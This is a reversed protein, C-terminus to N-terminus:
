ENRLAPLLPARLTPLVAFLGSIMAVAFVAALMLSVSALPLTDPREALHPLVAVAASITGVLLGAAVLAANELLVMWGLSSSAFGVARMLALEGRRELVNRLMVAALGITGLILGLGGLMQFTSLYTNQVASYDRIRDATRAVDFGFDTLNRELAATMADAKGLPTEILFFRSGTSSPFLRAFNANSVILEDQLASGKLLAVFRLPVQRGREDPIVLDKGLGSHLQWKAAAEDGIVPVADDEFERDLLRWPNEHEAEDDALTSSFVFGGRAIFDDRVGIIRPETPRYLNLCSSEDGPRLRCSFVTADALLRSAEDGINLEERGQETNLDFQLPVASEAYLAFGGTPSTKETSSTDTEIRFAQLAAIVFTASAILGITLMSRGPHRRANRAGLRAVASFGPQQIVRRPESSLVVKIAAMAAILVSAGMTFFAAPEPLAELRFMFYLAAALLVAGVAISPAILGRRASVPSSEVAGAILASPPRRTLGRISWAISVTAVALGAVYGIVYSVVSGHLQLFPANVAQSWWSRLGALMLWAYGSAALIGVVAGVGAVILGECLLFVAVRRPAFGVALLLGLEAARREVALRFLLAVLMASALILFFSFGIFLGGFDTSGKSAALARSRVDDFTLGFEAPDVSKLFAGRLEAQFTDLAIGEPLTTRISTLDGFREPDDAWLSQGEALSVFAKPAARYRDWYDEDRDQIKELDVPFPPNWDAINETDTIDPYDPVLGPDAVGNTMQLVGRLTFTHSQKDLLGHDATVYYSLSITDGSDADLANATWKNLYLEGTQLPPAPTGDLFRFDAEDLTAEDVAAVTSYPVTASGGAVAIENALYALVSSTTAGVQRAAQMASREAPPELLFRDSELAVYGRKEDQRFNLGLDDMQTAQQLASRLWASRDSVNSTTKISRTVLIANVRDPQNLMRQMTSLPVFVNLPTAHGPSLSFPAMGSDAVRSVPVRTTLTTDDRRGLVTETSVDSPKGIRLLVDDGTKAGIEDALTDNLLAQRGGAFVAPRCVPNDPRDADHAFWFSDDIGLINVRQAVARTEAHTISGTMSILPFANFFEDRFGPRRVIDRALEERFFRQSSLAFEVPGLRGVALERLSGRMSDGVLLAGTLAATGAAVGLAIAVNTWRYHILSRHRLTRPKV